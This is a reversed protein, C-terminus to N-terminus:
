TAASRAAIRNRRLDSLRIKGKAGQSPGAAEKLACGCMSAAVCCGVLCDLWHNANCGPRLKWEDVTRGRGETRVKYEATLHEALLMHREPDRGWLTLSGRDGIPTQIRSQMFSKWYNTDFLVHRVARRGAVSPIRWNHGVVDGQTKKYESMPKTGAGIYRGHGPTIINGYASERCFQYVVETSDGWNADILCREVKLAAGDDRMYEHALKEETLKRLAGYLAGEFGADRFKMQITPSADNLSFYRRRQEPWAGCDIVCGGFDDSWACVLYFLLKLQIDVFMTVHTCSTPVSGMTRGNLKALVMDATLQEEGGLDEPLPENQYESWFAAEDQLKLNMAHQIASIEDYNHRAEWGVVAGEDMEARHQRYFETAKSFNGDERLGDARLDAYREWLSTNKPFSYVMKAKESNWEPHRSRDLIQDAMDGPRIITCPMIGSIKRGPGALGLIDGELVRIRKRTQEISGASESTQPDDVIVLSPRLTRGSPHKYKAGRIRGTIGAVRVIVGSSAAGPMTPLVIENSTWTIRTREGKYLQGACRNAIGELQAIPYTAEPFDEALHENVELETKISDLMEVSASETAGVLMVFERHGYLMAWLCAAEALSSKGSGRSMALAFLGGHLVAEEIKAIVKLYDPSWELNFVEPFYCECFKRFDERCSRKREEDVVPPLEGIDRGALSQAANRAREAERREDYSRGGQVPPPSIHLDALRAIYKVLNICRPDDAAAINFGLRTFDRYVRNSTIATGLRTSNLLRAAEAPRLRSPNIPM